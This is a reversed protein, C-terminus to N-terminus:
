ETELKRELRQMRKEMLREKVALRDPNLNDYAKKVAREQNIRNKKVEELLKPDTKELIRDYRKPPLSRRGDIVVLDNPYIDSKFKELFKKGLSQSMTAYEPIREGLVEGTKEDIVEYHHAFKPGNRKKTVYRGVYAASEFTLNGIVCHGHGWLQTLEDSIFYKEGNHTKWYTKDSFDFNFLCVHHHPRNKKEGYEGCQLYRIKRPAYKARLRKLFDIIDKKRLSGLPPVNEPSYTLTLFCNAEYLKSEHVSCIATERSKNLRCVRCQGCPLTVPVRSHSGSPSFIISRKGNPNLNASRYGTLPKLCQM